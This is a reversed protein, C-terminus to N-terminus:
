IPAVGAPDIAPSTTRALRDTIWRPDSSQLGPVLVKVVPVEIAGRSLDVFWADFGGARLNQLVSGVSLPGGSHGTTTAPPGAAAFQPFANRNLRDRRELWTRDQDTLRDPGLQRSKELALAQALEMQCLELFARHMARGADADAAFGAVVAQGSDECSLAAIVPVGIDTTLDLFWTQRASRQRVRSVLDATASDSSPDAEYASRGGWWWLGVADREIVELLGSLVAAETSPGAALGTSDAQRTGAARDDHRRIVLDKPMRLETGGDVPSAAVWDIQDQKTEPPLGIGTLAWDLIQPEPEAGTTLNAAFPRDPWELFSLYEAVEGACSEVAERLTAGRGSAGGRPGLPGNFRGPDVMAGFFFAGPAHPSQLFFCDDCRALLRLLAARNSGADPETPVGDAELYDLSVLWQRIAEDTLQDPHELRDAARAFIEAHNEVPFIM